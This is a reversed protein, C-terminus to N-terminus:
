TVAVAMAVSKFRLTVASAVPVYVRVLRGMPGYLSSVLPAPNGCRHASRSRVAAYRVVDYDIRGERHSLDGLLHLDLGRRRRVTSVRSVATLWTMSLVRTTSNGNFPRCTVSRITSDPAAVTEEVM